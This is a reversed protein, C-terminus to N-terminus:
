FAKLVTPAESRGDEFGQQAHQLLLTRGSREYSCVRLKVTAAHEYLHIGYSEYM